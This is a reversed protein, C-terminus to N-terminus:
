LRYMRPLLAKISHPLEAYKETSVADPHEVFHVVLQVIGNKLNAPLVPVVTPASADYGATFQVRVSGEMSGAVPYVYGPRSVILGPDQMETVFYEASNWTQLTLTEDLYKVNTVTILPPAPIRIPQYPAPFGDFFAVCTKRALSRSTLTEAYARAVPILTTILADDVTSTSRLAAKVEALTVPEVTPETIVNLQM